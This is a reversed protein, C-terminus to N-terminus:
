VRVDDRTNPDAGSALLVRVVEEHGLSSARNLATVGTMYTDEANPDANCHQLLFAVEADNGARAHCYLEADVEEQSPRWEKMVTPDHLSLMM